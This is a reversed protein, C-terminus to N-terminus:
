PHQNNDLRGPKNERTAWFIKWYDEISFNEDRGQGGFMISRSFGLELNPHPKFNLRMGFLKPEPVAREDELETYFAMIRFPGLFRFIWPLLVPRPNSIKVMDFPEANNSLLLSGHYGPGWWQSDRGIEIELNKINIKITNLSNLYFILYSYM